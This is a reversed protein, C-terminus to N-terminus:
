MIMVNAINLIKLLILYFLKFEANEVMTNVNCASTSMDNTVM